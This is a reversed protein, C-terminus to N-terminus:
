AVKVRGKVVQDKARMFDKVSIEGFLELGLKFNM